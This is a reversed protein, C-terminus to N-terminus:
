RWASTMMGSRVSARRRSPRTSASRPSASARFTRSCIPGRESSGYRQRALNNSPCIKSSRPSRASASRRYRAATGSTGFERDANTDVHEDRVAAALNAAQSRIIELQAVLAHHLRHRLHLELLNRQVQNEYEVGAAAHGSFPHM